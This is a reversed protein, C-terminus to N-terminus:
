PAPATLSEGPQGADEPGPNLRVVMQNVGAQSGLRRQVRGPIGYQGLHGRGVLVIVQQQGQRKPGTQTQPGQIQQVIREAMTEDWLVQAQFFYEFNRAPQGPKPTGHVQDFIGRLQQRYPKSSLDISDIPPIWRRQDANLSALGQRGVQRTIEKPTNLAILPIGQQKAFRFIPAYLAWDYGWRQQYETQTLLEAESIKGAVYADLAAQYPKQIMELAIAVPQAARRSGGAPSSSRRYLAQIVRLQLQHDAESTHTEGLYLVQAQSYRQIQGDWTSPNSIEPANAMPSAWVASGTWAQLCLLGAWLGTQVRWLSWPQFRPRPPHRLPSPPHM